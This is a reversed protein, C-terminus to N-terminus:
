LLEYYTAKGRGARVILDQEILVRIIRNATERSVNFMKQIESSNIRPNVQLYKLIKIQRENLFVQGRKDKLRRDHSLQLVTDKVKNMSVAVGECFYELWQTTDLTKQDVTQLATYYRGRDENYYDDLAFFRKTDFGKLYLILTSLARATRGNGDVFPHIRVFEYHSIGSLIVPYLERAQSSNLWLIFDKMLSSIKNIPPPQFVVEGYGNVVAVPIKRYFGSQDMPLINKTNIQHIKLIIEETINKVKKDGLKDIYGLVGIYNLVEDKDKQWAAVENGILLKKVQELTLPNGEISTSHHAMKVIAERRLKLEWQPLLSANLILERAASIEAIHQVIKNTTKFVPNFM